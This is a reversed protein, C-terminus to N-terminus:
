RTAYKRAERRALLHYMERELDEIQKPNFVESIQKKLKAIETSQRIIELRNYM